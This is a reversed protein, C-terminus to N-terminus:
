ADQLLHPVFVDLFCATRFLAMEFNLDRQEKLINSSAFLLPLATQFSADKVFQLSTTPPFFVWLFGLWASTGVSGLLWTGPLCRICLQIRSANM